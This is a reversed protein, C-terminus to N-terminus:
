KFKEGHNLLAREIQHRRCLFVGFLWDNASRGERQEMSDVTCNCCDECCSEDDNNERFAFLVRWDGMM